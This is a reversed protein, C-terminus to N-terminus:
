DEGIERQVTALARERSALMREIESPAPGGTVTRSRLNEAPDLARRIEASAIGLPKGFLATNECQRAGIESRMLFRM